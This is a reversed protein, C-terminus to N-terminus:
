EKEDMRAIGNQIFQTTTKDNWTDQICDEVPKASNIRLGKITFLFSPCNMEPLPVRFTINQSAWVTQQVLVQYHIQSLSHILFTAPLCEEPTKWKQGTSQNCLKTILAQLEEKKMPSAVGYTKSQTIEGVADFIHDCTKNHLEATEVDSGFPIALLTKGEMTSWDDLVEQKICAYASGPYADHIPPSRSGRGGGPATKGRNFGPCPSAYDVPVFTGMYGRTVWPVGGYLAGTCLGSGSVICGTIRFCTFCLFLPLLVAFLRVAVDGFFGIAFVSLTCFRSMVATYDGVLCCLMMFAWGRSLMDCCVMLYVLICTPIHVCACIRIDHHMGWQVLLRQLFKENELIYYMCTYNSVIVHVLPPNMIIFYIDM